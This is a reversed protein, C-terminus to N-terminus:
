RCVPCGSRRRARTEVRARWEHGHACKWWVNQSSRPTVSQPSLKGNYERHWESALDPRSRALCHDPSASRGSCYPCGSRRLCRNTVSACWEHESRRRCRWWVRRASGAVVDAPTLAGNKTPHWEAAISPQTAALSDARSVRLRLCFPCRGDVTLRDHPSVCWEHDDAVPCKWWVRRASGAVVHAPTLSGNRSPHWQEALDPRVRALCNTVSPRRGACFPCGTKGATRNNPSARWEHDPGRSCKWWVRLASGHSVQFPQLDGNRTPHWEQSLDPWGSVWYASGKTERAARRSQSSSSKSRDEPRRPFRELDDSMRHPSPRPAVPRCTRHSM